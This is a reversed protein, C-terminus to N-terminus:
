PPFGDPWRKKIPLDLRDPEIPREPHSIQDPPNPREPRSQGLVSESSAADLERESAAFSQGEFVAGEEITLHSARVDGRVKGTSGIEVRGSRINGFVSGFVRVEGAKIDAHVAARPGIVLVDSTTISGHFEGDIRFTGEFTLEGTLSTGLDLFGNFKEASTSSRWKL